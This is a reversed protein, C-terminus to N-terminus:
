SNHRHAGLREAVGVLALLKEREANALREIDSKSQSHSAIRRAHQDIDTTDDGQSPADLIVSMLTPQPSTGVGKQFQSLDIALAAGARLNEPSSKNGLIRIAASLIQDKPHPLLDEDYIFRSTDISAVLACYDTVVGFDSPKKVTQKHQEKRSVSRGKIWFIVFGVSVISAIAVAVTGAIRTDSEILILMVLLASIGWVIVAIVAVVVFDIIDRM